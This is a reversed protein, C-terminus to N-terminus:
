ITSNDNLNKYRTMMTDAIATHVSPPLHDDRASDTVPYISRVLPDIEDDAFEVVKFNYVTKLLKVIAQNKMYSHNAHNDTYLFMTERTMDWQGRKTPHGPADMPCAEYTEFRLLCPWMIFVVEPTFLECTNYLMRTVMDPGGGGVGLNYCNHDPFNQSVKYVWTDEVRLGIGETHSCGFFLINKRSSALDFEQTRFGHSNYDYTISTKTYGHKPNKEFNAESDGCMWFVQKNRPRDADGQPLVGAEWLGGGM